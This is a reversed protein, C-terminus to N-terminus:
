IKYIKFSNAQESALEKIGQWLNFWKKKGRQYHIVKVKKNHQSIFDAFEQVDELCVSVELREVMKLKWNKINSESEPRLFIQHYPFCYKKLWWELFGQFRLYNGTIVIIQWRDKKLLELLKKIELDPKRIFRHHLYFIIPLHSEIKWWWFNIQQPVIKSLCSIVGDFDVAIRKV